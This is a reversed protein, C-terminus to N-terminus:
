DRIKTSLHQTQEAKALMEIHPIGDELYQESVVVFGFDMYFKKLYLQASIRVDHEPLHESIKQMAIELLQKGLGQGRGENITMVRGLSADKYKLGPPVVRLYAQVNEHNRQNSGDDSIAFLHWSHQDNDDADQYVCEQEVAFVAQRIKLIEYLEYLTLEDFAKWVWHIM